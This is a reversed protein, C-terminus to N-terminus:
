AAAPMLEHSIADIESETIQDLQDAYGVLLAMDALRNLRRPNGGTVEYLRNVADDTFIPETSGAAQLASRVYDQTETLTLGQLAATVAIRDCIQVHKRLKASLVPQGAVIISLRISEEADCISLLPQIVQMLCADSMQHADDFCILTQKGDNTLRILSSRISNLLSDTPLDINRVAEENQLDATIIRLLEVPALLSFPVYVIPSFGSSAFSKMLSSKGTGSQGILMGIGLSNDMCYKLRLKAAQQSHNRYMASTNIRQIFPKHTLNWYSEYM